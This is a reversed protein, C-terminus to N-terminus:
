DQLQSPFRFAGARRRRWWPGIATDCVARGQWAHIMRDEASQIACHKAPCGPKFRFILVDGPGAEDLQIEIMWRQAAILLREAAGGRESWDPSYAPVPEPEQGYLSRWVGRILGLCDAGVRKASAQHRYPTGIWNRAEILAERRRAVSM